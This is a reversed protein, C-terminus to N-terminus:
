DPQIIAAVLKYVYVDGNNKAHPESLSVTVCCEGLPYQGVERNMYAPEIVADTVWLWYAVGRHTFRAQVRKRPNNFDAGTIVVHVVLDQVHIMCISTPLGAAIAHRIQDNRGEWTSDGNQWLTTPNEAVALIEEWQAHREKVWYYGNDLVWNETQNEHPAASKVALYLVDGVEPETGDQYKREPFSVEHTPRESVPRVWSGATGNASLERGAVCRGAHKRSNALCMIKKSTM